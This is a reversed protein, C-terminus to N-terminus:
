RIKPLRMSRQMSRLNPQAMPMSCGRDIGTGNSGLQSSEPVVADRLDHDPAPVGSSGNMGMTLQQWYMTPLNALTIRHMECLNWFTEPGALWADTRLM